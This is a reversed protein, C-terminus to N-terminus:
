KDEIQKEPQGSGHPRADTAVTADVVVPRPATGFRAILALQTMASGLGLVNPAWIFPDGLILAGYGLWVTTNSISFVQACGCPLARPTMLGPWFTLLASSCSPRSKTRPRVTFGLPISAASKDRLVAGMATLPGGFMAVCVGCGLYGIVQQATDLPLLMASGVTTAILGASAGLYPTVVAQPSKYKIFTAVYGTGMVIASINPLMITMNSLLAGYTFWLTGNAVMM